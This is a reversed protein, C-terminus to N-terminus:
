RNGRPFRLSLRSPTRTTGSHNTARSAHINFQDFLKVLVVITPQVFALPRQCSFFDHSQLGAPLSPTSTRTTGTPSISNSALRAWFNARFIDNANRRLAQKIRANQSGDKQSKFSIVPLFFQLVEFRGINFHWRRHHYITFFIWINANAIASRRREKHDAFATFAREINGHVVHVVFM